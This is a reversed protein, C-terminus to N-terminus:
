SIDITGCFHSVRSKIVGSLPGDLKTLTSISGYTHIKDYVHRLHCFNQCYAIQHLENIFLHIIVYYYTKTVFIDTLYGSYTCYFKVTEAILM